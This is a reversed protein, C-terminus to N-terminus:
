GLLDQSSVFSAGCGNMHCKLKTETVHDWLHDKLDGMDQWSRRWNYCDPVPCRLPRYPRDDKIPHQDIIQQILPHIRSNEKHVSQEEEKELLDESQDEEIPEQLWENLKGHKFQLHSSQTLLLHHKGKCLPKELFRPRACRANLPRKLSM